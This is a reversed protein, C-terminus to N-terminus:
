RALTVKVQMSRPRGVSPGSTFAGKLIYRRNLANDVFFELHAATGHVTVHVGVSPNVIFSPAVKVRPNFAFLSTYNPAAGPFGNTLGSGFIGTVSAYGFGLAYEGNAVISLRQDHDQDFWGSPYPTPFFGGTVPGHASAHSLAANLYGSFPGGPHIEVASEIGTVHVKAINVTAVLATGPLTNDDVAPGDNRYYGDVKTTVGGAFRHAIGTEYYYDREPVTPQGVTGSNAAAALVHFDEVNSPIFLRGYYAWVLTSQDPYWNLRVRPSVQHIDGALPAVHHDLRLGARIQWHASPDFVSQAYAGVDGGRVGTNVSPGDRQLSDRTNFNERGEVFSADLGTKLALDSWPSAMYDVKAGVTTAARHEQVNFRDSTDPYFIFRASDSAGPVYDLASRRVYVATFLESPRAAASEGSRAVADSLRHRWGIDAVWNEDSQHDDLVGFSSDYPIGAHTRSGDIDLTIVDRMSPTYEIKGFGYQDQGANHFNLPIGQANAELPERRMSTESRTGSALFGFPGSNTSLLLTQGDSNFSGAYGSAQGHFGGTPVRTTVDVIAINRNGFEADWGGTQFEIRDVIAPDFLENLTGGIGSPVPVGDVYYTYEAHQGRIHVEGTPARAAGAISQQIIQSTTTTPAGHYDNQQFSQDGTRTDIAVPAGSTITVPQLQSAVTNLLLEVEVGTASRDLVIVRQAVAYGVRRATVEFTGAGSVRLAFRGSTDSRVQAVLTQGASLAVMVGSLPMGSVSDRVQGVVRRDASDSPSPADQGDAHAAAGGLVGVAVAALLRWHAM